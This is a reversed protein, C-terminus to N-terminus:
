QPLERPSKIQQDTAEKNLPAGLVMPTIYYFDGGEFVDPGHYDKSTSLGERELEAMEADEFDKIAQLASEYSSYVGLAQRGEYDWGREVIYVATGVAEALRVAEMLKRMENM